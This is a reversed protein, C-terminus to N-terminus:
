HKSHPTTSNHSRPGPPGMAMARQGARLPDVIRRGGVHGLAFGVGAYETANAKTMYKRPVSLKWSTMERLKRARTMLPVERRKEMHDKDYAFESCFFQKPVVISGILDEGHSAELPLLAELITRGYKPVLFEDFDVNIVYESESRARYACDLQSAQHELLQSENFRLNWRHVRIVAGSVRQLHVFFLEVERPVQGVYFDFRRVGVMSHYGVFEALASLKDFHGTIPNTCVACCKAKSKQPMHVDVWNPVEMKHGQGLAVRVTSHNLVAEPFEVPCLFSSTGMPLWSHEPVPENKAEVVYTQKDSSIWCQISPRTRQLESGDNKTVSVIRITWSSGVARRELYASYVYVGPFIPRWNDDDEYTM